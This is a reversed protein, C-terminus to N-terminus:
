SWVRLSWIIIRTKFCSDSCLRLATNVASSYLSSFRETCWKVTTNQQESKLIYCKQLLNFFNLRTQELELCAAFWLLDKKIAILKLATKSLHKTHNCSQMSALVLFSVKLFASCLIALCIKFWTILIRFSFCPLSGYIFSYLTKM